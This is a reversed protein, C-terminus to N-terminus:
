FTIELGAGVLDPGIAPSMRVTPEEDVHIGRAAKEDAKKAAVFGKYYFYTAAIASVVTVGIFVNALTAASEGDDCIGVLTDANAKQPDGAPVAKAAGCADNEANVATANLAAVLAVNELEAKKDDEKSSVKSGYITWGVIGVGTTVATSWFLIRSTRGPSPPTDIMGGGGGGGGGGDCTLTVSVEESGGAAVSVEADYRQCGESEVSLTHSGDTVGAVSASGASLTTRVEGDIYVTGAQVNARITLSGDSPMGTLRGYLARSWNSISGPQAERFPILDATNKKTEKAAVDLLQLKVEYGNSRRELKGFLLLDAKLEKGIQSMCARNEDSCDSLLKMELLDKASNPALEFKSNAKTAEKRLEKSLLKATSATRPDNSGDDVVELGLIAIKPKAVAANAFSVWAICAAIFPVLIRKHM